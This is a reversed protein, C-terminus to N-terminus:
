WIPKGIMGASPEAGFEALLTATVDALGPSQARAAKSTLLMGPVLARDICHDGSWKDRNDEVLPGAVGGLVSSDACRYGSAYGVILDPARDPVEAAFDRRTYVQSVVRAGTDPDRAGLLEQSLQQILAERETESVFGNAERGLLNLYVANFGVAYARTASWQVNDSYIGAEGEWPGTGVLYGNQALWGNVHFFRYYPAFGHDSMVLVTTDRDAADLAMKVLRDSMEYTKDIVDGYERAAQPTYAPHRPDMTRWFMHQHRDTASFYYCLLGRRFENLASGYLRVEEDVSGHVQHLYEADDLVGSRLAKVDEPFGQTYFRGHKEALQTVFDLPASMPLAPALPDVNIPTIYLKLNPSVQKLYFRCIGTVSSLHPLMEFQLPIWESWEGERLLVEQGSAAIKAAKHDRDVWITLDVGSAPSEARLTDPPGELRTQVRSNSVTVPVILGASKEQETVPADTLYTCEGYTGRLDPAGLGALQKSGNDRPPFNSPVRYIACPVGAEGLIEWFPRGKRLSEVRGHSLPIRWSGLSLNRHPPEARAISFYPLYTAPDRHIFDYLGHGGPDMGTTFTAWAVPSQPPITSTLAGFGGMERLRQMNPLRGQAMLRAVRRPDLGDLGLVIAKRERTTALRRSCGVLAASDVLALAGLAALKKLTERKSSDFERGPQRSKQGRGKSM